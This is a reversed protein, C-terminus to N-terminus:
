LYNEPLLGHRLAFIAVQTRDRLNLKQFIISLYNKVTKESYALKDAIERNSMGDALNRIIEQEKETLLEILDRHETLRTNPIRHYANALVDTLEAEICTVGTSVRRITDAVERMSCTKLLYGKAGNKVAQIMHQQETHMSLIIVAIDPFEQTIQRTLTIGDIVPMTVDLLVVAPRLQRIQQMASFGDCAEGIVAIDKELSLLQRLGARILTHDDVLLVSIFTTHKSKHTAHRNAQHPTAEVEQSSLDVIAVSVGKRDKEITPPM